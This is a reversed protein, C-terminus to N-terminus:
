SVLTRISTIVLDIAANPPINTHHGTFLCRVQLSLSFHLLQPAITYDAVIMWSYRSNECPWWITTATPHATDHSLRHFLYATVWVSLVVSTILALVLSIEPSAFGPLLHRSESIQSALSVIVYIRKKLIQLPDAEFHVIAIVSLCSLLAM